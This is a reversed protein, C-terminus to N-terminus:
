SLFPTSVRPRCPKVVQMQLGIRDETVPEVEAVVPKMLNLHFPDLLGDRSNNVRADDLADAFRRRLIRIFLSASVASTIESSSSFRGMDRSFRLRVAASFLVRRSRVFFNMVMKM